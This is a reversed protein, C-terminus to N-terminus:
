LPCIGQRTGFAALRVLDVFSCGTMKCPYYHSLARPLGESRKPSKRDCLEEENQYWSMKPDMDWLGINFFQTSIQRVHLYINAFFILFKWILHLLMIGVHCCCSCFVEPISGPAARQLTAAAGSSTWSPRAELEAEKFVLVPSSQDILVTIARGSFDVLLDCFSSLFPHLIHLDGRDTIAEM